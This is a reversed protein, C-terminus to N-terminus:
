LLIWWKGNGKCSENCVGMSKLKACSVPRMGDAVKDRSRDIQYITYSEKFDKYKRFYEVIKEDSWKAYIAELVFSLRAAHPPEDEAMAQEICPRIRWKTPGNYTFEKARQQHEETERLAIEIAEKVVEKPIYNKRKDYLIDPNVPKVMKKTKDHMSYPARAKWRPATSWAREIRPYLKCLQGIGETGTLIGITKDLIRNLFFYDDTTEAPRSLVKHPFWVYLHAGKKGSFVEMGRIAWNDEILNNLSEAGVISYKADGKNCDFDFFLKDLFSLVGEQRFCNVSMALYYEHHVSTVLRRKFDMKDHIYEHVTYANRTVLERGHGRSRQFWLDIWDEPVDAFWKEVDAM